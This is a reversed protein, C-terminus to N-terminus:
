LLGAGGQFTQSFTHDSQTLQVQAGYEEEGEEEKGALYIYSTKGRKSLMFKRTDDRSVVFEEQMNVASLLRELEESPILRALEQRRVQQQLIERARALESEQQQLEAEKQKRSREEMVNGLKRLNAFKRLFEIDSNKHDIRNVEEQKDEDDLDLGSEIYAEIMDGSAEVNNERAPIEQIDDFGFTVKKTKRKSKDEDTDETHVDYKGNTTAGCIENREKAGNSATGNLCTEKDTNEQLDATLQAPIDSPMAPPPAGEEFMGMVDYKRGRIKMNPRIPDHFYHVSVYLPVSTLCILLFCTIYKM